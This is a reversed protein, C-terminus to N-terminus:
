IINKRIIKWQWRWTTKGDPQYTMINDTAKSADTSAHIFTFKQDPSTITGDKHTHLLGLGHLSEHNLTFNDRGQYLVVSKKGIDEVRGGVNRTSDQLDFCFAYFSGVYINATASNVLQRMYSNLTPETRIIRGSTDVYKGRTGTSGTVKFNDDATVDLTIELPIEPFVLGQYLANYLNIKEINNIAGTNNRSSGLTNTIVNVLVFKQTKVNKVPHAGASNENAFVIIKGALKRKALQEPLTRALSGKPYVFVKIAQDTGYDAICKIKLVDATAERKAGLAKNTILVPNADDGNLGNIEFYRKDFVVRIQDPEDTGGVEVLTRLEVEFPPKPMGAPVTAADSVPKPFINLYPVFYDKTFPAVAPKPIINITIKKYQKKLAKYAEDKSEYVNNADRHPARGNPAEYGNEICDYYKAETTLGNDDVRLWDFGFQGTYTGDQKTRFEVVCDTTIKELTPPNRPTNFTVGNQQGNQIIKNNSNIEINEDSYIKYSGGTTKLIDGGVYRYRSM